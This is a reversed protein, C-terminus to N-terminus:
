KRKAEITTGDNASGKVSRAAMLFLASIDVLTIVPMIRPIPIDYRDRIM